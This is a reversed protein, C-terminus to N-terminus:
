SVVGKDEWWAEEEEMAFELDFDYLVSGEANQYISIVTRWVTLGFEFCEKAVKFTLQDTSEYGKGTTTKGFHRCGNYLCNFRQFDDKLKRDLGHEDVLDNFIEIPFRVKSRPMAENQGLLQSISLGLTALAFVCKEKLDCTNEGSDAYESILDRWCRWAKRLSFLQLNTDTGGTTLYYYYNAKTM